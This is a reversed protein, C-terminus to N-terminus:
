VVRVAFGSLKPSLHHSLQRHGASQFCKWKKFIIKPLVTIHRGRRVTTKVAQNPGKCVLDFAPNTQREPHSADSFYVAEDAPLNTMLDQYFATFGAQKEENAARPLISSLTITL